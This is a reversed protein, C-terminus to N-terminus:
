TAAGHIQDACSAAKAAVDMYAEALRNIRNMVKGFRIQTELDDIYEITIEGTKRSVTACIPVPHEMKDTTL